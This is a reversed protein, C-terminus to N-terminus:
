KKNNVMDMITDFGVRNLSDGSVGEEEVIDVLQLERDKAYEKIRDKQLKISNGQKMTSTRVFGIINKM